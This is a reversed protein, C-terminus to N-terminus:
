CRILVTRVQSLIPVEYFGECRRHLVERCFLLLGLVKKIESIFRGEGIAKNDCGTSGVRVEFCKSVIEFDLELFVFNFGQGLVTKLWATPENQVGDVKHYM